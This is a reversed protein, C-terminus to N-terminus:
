QDDEPNREGRWPANAWAKQPRGQRGRRKMDTVAADAILLATGLVVKRRLERIYKTEKCGQSKMIRLVRLLHEAQAITKDIKKM